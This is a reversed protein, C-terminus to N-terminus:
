HSFLDITLIWGELVKFKLVYTTPVWNLHNVAQMAIKNAIQISEYM